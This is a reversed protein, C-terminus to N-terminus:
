RWDGAAVFAAWHFPHTSDHRYRRSRLIRRSADRVAEATSDGHVLRADYLARMWERTALDDVSWLSLISTSVGAAHLARRLGFIGERPRLVGRGTDCASLVAWQVGELDMTAIEVGTLIGDDDLPREARDNAGTLALGALLLPNLGAGSISATVGASPTLGSVARRRPEAVSVDCSAALFFGHTAIHVIRTGPALQRLMSESAEDGTLGVAPEGDHAASRWMSVLDTVEHRSQPLPTFHVDALSCPASGPDPRSAPDRRSAEHERASGVIDDDASAVLGADFSPSGLALFGWGPTAEDLVDRETTLLHIIPGHEILFTGDDETLAGLAVRHLIGDPVVLIANTRARDIGNVSPDVVDTIPDIVDTIPDWIRRRLATAVGLYAADAEADPRSMAHGLTTEDRWRDALLDIEAASGLRLMHVGAAGDASRGPPLVFAVYEPDPLSTRHFAVLAHDPPLARELDDVRCVARARRRRFPESVRALEREADDEDRVAEAISARLDDPDDEPDLSVLHALRASTEIVRSLAAAVEPDDAGRSARAREALEDLLVARSAIIADWTRRVDDPDNPDALAVAHDLANDRTASYRLALREPMARATLVLHTRAIREATLAMEFRESVSGVAGDLYHMLANATTPNDAGYQTECIHRARDFSRRARDLHGARADLRGLNLLSNAIEINDDPYVDQRISFAREHLRYAEAGLTDDGSVGASDALVLGLNDLAAALSSGPAGEGGEGDGELISIAEELYSRAGALDGAALAYSGLNQLLTGVDQQDAMDMGRMIALAREATRRAGTLDGSRRQLISRSNLVSVLDVHAPGLRTEIQAIAEDFIAMAPAYHGLAVETSALAARTKSSTPHTPGLTEDLISVAERLADGAERHRGATLAMLGLSRYTRGILPHRPPLSRVRIALAREFHERAADYDGRYRDLIGINQHSTALALDDPHLAAERIRLAREFAARADDRRDIIAFVTGLGDLSEAVDVHDAGLADERIAVSRESAAIAAEFDGRRRHLAAIVHLTAGVSEHEPGFLRRRLSLASEALATVEDGVRNASVHLSLDADLLDAYRTSDHEAGTEFASRWAGIASDAEAFRGLEVLGTIASRRDGADTASTVSSPLGAVAACAVAALSLSTVDASFRCSAM